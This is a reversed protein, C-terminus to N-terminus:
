EMWDGLINYALARTGDLTFDSNKQLDIVGHRLSQELTYDSLKYVGYSFKPEKEYHTVIPTISADKIIVKGEEKSLIIKAMGGLMRPAEKQYSIYNGLSYYVLMKHGSKSTIWEIPEVVHPHTGIVLDVELEAFLTTWYIQNIDPEYVYETGWHPFVIVFDALEKAKKIDEKLQEKDTLMNVLYPKDKPLTYGNLGYTYNLMAIRIGNKTVIPISERDEKTKNIGIPVIDPYSEWFELTRFVAKEGRDMTHNTAHLVVDFGAKAIADGIELPSNFVPYGSYPFLDGGLITEQNIISIDSNTFEDKLQLFLHDYNYSGDEKSGSQIVQEHVLNDGVALLTVQNEPEIAAERLNPDNQNLNTLDDLLTQNRANTPNEPSITVQNSVVQNLAEQNAEVLHNSITENIIDKKEKECGLLTLTLLLFLILIKPRFLGIPKYM